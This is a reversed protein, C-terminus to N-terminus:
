RARAVVTVIDWLNLPVAVRGVRGGELRRALADVPGHGPRVTRLKHAAYGLTYWAAPASAALPEFGARELAAALTARTFYFNHYRPVLLHWRRGSLRAVLSGADGTSLAVLGGPRLAERARDLDGAPDISHEIYDWMTVCDHAGPELEADQFFGTHVPLGLEDRAHAAMPEALEIGRPDWGRDRAEALFHGAACGVDLIRGPPMGRELRDLRRRANLRHLEADGLYDAYGQGGTDDESREWYSRSYVALVEERDPLDARFILGCRGCRVVEFGDRVFRVRQEEPGAGCLNCDARSM